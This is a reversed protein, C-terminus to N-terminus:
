ALFCVASGGEPHASQVGDTPTGCLVCVSAVLGSPANESLTSKPTVYIIPKEPTQLQGDPRLPM